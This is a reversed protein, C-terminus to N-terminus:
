EGIFLDLDVDKNMLYLNLQRLNLYNSASLFIREISLTEVSMSRIMECVKPLIKLCFRDLIEDALPSIVSNFSNIQLLTLHSTFLSDQLFEDLEMNLGFLSYLVEVNDLKQFIFILIEDPLKLLHPYSNAM